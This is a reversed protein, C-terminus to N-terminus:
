NPNRCFRMRLCCNFHFYGTEPFLPLLTPFSHTPLHVMVKQPQVQSSFELFHKLVCMGTTRDSPLPPQYSLVKICLEAKVQHQKSSTTHMGEGKQSTMCIHAFHAGPILPLWVSTSTTLLSDLSALHYPSFPCPFAVSLYPVPVMKLAHFHFLIPSVSGQFKMLCCVVATLTLHEQVSCWTNPLTVIDPCPAPLLPWQHTWWM